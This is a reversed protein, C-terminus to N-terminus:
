ACQEALLSDYVQEMRRATLEISFHDAVRQRGQRGMEASKDPDDLLRCIAAAMADPDGMPVLLGTEGDSVIEKVGGGDTAVVPKGAAMGEVVVQGFPEATISAHVLLDLGAVLEPVDTRFGTFDVLDDLGLTTCLARIEQEYAHEGFLPAGVILFRADPYRQHVAAAAQLFVHQGKWRAIRGVLGIRPRVVDVSTPLSPLAGVCSEEQLPTDDIPIGDHVVRLRPQDALHLTEGTSQSNAVLFHPLVRCLRRFLRVVPRPLYDEDIRDRVHWLLRTGTLRAAFGGLIDAKLSNTHVLDPKHTRLFQSLRVVYTCAYIADGLRLLSKLGLKDKRAQQVNSALPLIYTEVGAARLREALPGEAGLLVFPAFKSRDLQQVLHLLAIEGGGMKATHDMFLIRKHRGIARPAAPRVAALTESSVTM